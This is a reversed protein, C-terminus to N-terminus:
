YRYGNQDAGTMVGGVVAVDHMSWCWCRGGASTNQLRLPFIEGNKEGSQLIKGRFMTEFGPSVLLGKHVHTQATCTSHIVFVNVQMHKAM